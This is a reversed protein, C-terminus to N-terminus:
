NKGTAVGQKASSFADRKAVNEAEDGARSTDLRAELDGINVSADHPIPKWTVKSFLAIWTALYGIMSFLPYMAIYWVTRYWKMKPIRDFETLILAAAMPIVGFHESILGEFVAYLLMPFESLLSSGALLMGCSAVIKAVKVPFICVSYPFTMIFLDYCSIRQKLDDGRVMGRLLPVGFEGFAQLHGKAWRIRQRLAIKLDTPQEDYFQAEHQYSIRVGSSIMGVSFARDETLSTYNWGDQVVKSSFLFGCGQIWTSLGLYSRARFEFRTTRLWHFAYGASIFNTDFNKTNRYSTIVQEGADFADNMRSIYDRKLLNDADFLFYGEFHDIRYDREIQRFLFQLAYGKTQHAEDFREYCIAGHARAIEATRDTCNDAVVFVTVKEPYDQKAISDLLNGLVKEENRASILVAYKHLGTAKPFTKTCFMGLIIFILRYAFLLGFVAMIVTCVAHLLEM